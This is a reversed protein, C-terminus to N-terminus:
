KINEECIMDVYEKAEKLGLGTIERRISGCICVMEIWVLTEIM